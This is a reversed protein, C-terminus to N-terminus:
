NMVVIGKIFNAPKHELTKFAEMIDDLKFEHSILEKTKFTGNNILLVARRWDELGNVAHKPHAFIISVGRSMAPRMDVEKFNQEYSSMVIYRGRTARLYTMTTDMVSTLGTGEILFDAMHGNTIKKIEEVADVKRSNITHTAGFKKAMELKEDSIDIAILASLFNGKLAQICWQGMPGCGFVIGVDGPEPAAATLVTVICKQPESFAYRPDIDKNVKMCHIAPISDYESFGVGDLCTVLDGVEFGEVNSGVEIVFGAQEHGVEQPYPGIIGKWHNLEWNCLGCAEIKVLLDDPGCNVEVEHIEFREPEM